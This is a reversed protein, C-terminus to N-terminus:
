RFFLTVNLLSYLSFLLLFIIMGGIDSDAVPIPTSDDSIDSYAPSVNGEARNSAANEYDM